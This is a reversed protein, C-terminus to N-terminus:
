YIQRTLDFGVFMMSPKDASPNQLFTANTGSRQATTTGPSNTFGFTFAHRWIKKKIGFAFASRHIGLEPGNALTPNAEAVLAVTPRIDVAAAVGLAFVNACPHVQFSPSIGAALPASCHQLPMPDWLEPGPNGILPRDRVSLTPVAYLQARHHGLSRSVILEFNETFNTAFNNQGDISVRVAANLPNGDKEDLFNYAVGFEIPRGILSPSRYAMVSLRSTVGFRVGFSSISFDDLGLLTNGRGPGVFAPELAFRHTFDLYFGHRDIRRGTPLTYVLDDGPNYVRSAKSKQSSSSDQSQAVANAQVGRDASSASEPTPPAQATMVNTSDTSAGPDVERITHKATDVLYHKGGREMIIESSSGSVFAIGLDSAAVMGSVNSASDERAPSPSRYAQAVAVRGLILFSLVLLVLKKTVNPDM